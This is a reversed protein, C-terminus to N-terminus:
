GSNLKVRTSRKPVTVWTQTWLHKQFSACLKVYFLLPARNNELTMWCIALDSPVFFDGIKVRISRNWVKVGTQIWQHIQFSACTTYFLHGITNRPWGDFNLTVHTSFQCNSDLKLLIVLGTAAIFNRLNAKNTQDRVLSLSNGFCVIIRNVSVYTSWYPAILQISLGKNKTIGSTFFLPKDISLDKNKM